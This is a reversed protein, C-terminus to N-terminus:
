YIRVEVRRFKEKKSISRSSRQYAVAGKARTIINSHSLGRRQLYKMVSEARNKSLKVPDKDTETPDAYGTLFITKNPHKQIFNTLADMYTALKLVPGFSPM